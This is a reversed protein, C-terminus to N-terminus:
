FIVSAYFGHSFCSDQHVSGQPVSQHHQAGTCSCACHKTMNHCTLQLFHGLHLGFQGYGQSAGLKSWIYKLHSCKLSQAKIFHLLIELVPFLACELIIHSFVM